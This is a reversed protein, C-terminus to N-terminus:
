PRPVSSAIVGLQFPTSEYPSGLEPPAYHQAPSLPSCPTLDFGQQISSLLASIPTKCSLQFDAVRDGVAAPTEPRHILLPLPVLEPTSGGVGEIQVRQLTLRVETKADPVSAAVAESNTISSEEEFINEQKELNQDEAPTPEPSEPLPISTPTIPRVGKSIQMNASGSLLDARTSDSDVPSKVQRINSGQAVKPPRALVPKVRALQSLTPRTIDRSKATARGADITTVRKLDKSPPQRRTLHTPKSSPPLPITGTSAIRSHAPKELRVPGGGGVPVSAHRENTPAHVVGVSPTFPKIVRQPGAINVATPPFPRTLPLHRHEPAKVALEERRKPPVQISRLPAAHQISVSRPLATGTCTKTPRIPGSSGTPKGSETPQSIGTRKSVSKTQPVAGM